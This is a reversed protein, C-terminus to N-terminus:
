YICDAEFLQMDSIARIKDGEIGIGTMNTGNM